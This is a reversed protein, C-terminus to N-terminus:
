IITAMFKITISTLNQLFSNINNTLQLWKDGNNIAIKM